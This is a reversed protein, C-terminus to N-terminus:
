IEEDKAQRRKQRAEPPESVDVDANSMFTEIFDEWEARAARPTLKRKM